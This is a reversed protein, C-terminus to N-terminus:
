GSTFKESLSEFNSVPNKNLTIDTIWNPNIFSELQVLIINPKVTSNSNDKCM